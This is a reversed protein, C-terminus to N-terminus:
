REILVFVRRMTACLAQHNALPAGISARLDDCAEALDRALRAPDRLNM